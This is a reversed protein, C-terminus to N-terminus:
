TMSELLFGALFPEQRVLILVGPPREKQVPYKTKAIGHQSCRRYVKVRRRPKLGIHSDFEEEVANPDDANFRILNRLALITSRFGRSSLRWVPTTSGHYKEPLKWDSIAAMLFDCDQM